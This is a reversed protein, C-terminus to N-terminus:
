KLGSLIEEKLGVYDRKGTKLLPIAERYVFTKPVGLEPVGERKAYASIRSLDIDPRTAVLVLREGKAEDPVGVCAVELEEDDGYADRCLNEVATLSIMEGAIKAFRKARDKIFVYGDADVSVVDGTEYWGDKLPQLVGPRDIKMYGMMINDGKVVLEGGEAVGDLKKIKYEIGPVIKGISGTRSYAQSCLTIVPSAETAGYGQIVRVGFKEVWLMRTDERLIEAGNIVLRMSAFDYPHAAKAYNRLFTNTAAMITVGSQYCIEPIVRYHLPTPYLFLRIGNMFPALTGFTLGFSHFMPLANFWVDSPGVNLTSVIQAINSAINRHSLVVAKPAGESGSTFLVVGEREHGGRKEPVYGRSYKAAAALKAGLGAGKLMDELYHVRVGAGEMSEILPALGIAEVFKRSTVATGVAAMKCCNLINKEGSSFNLMAPTRSHASLALFVALNNISNPLLVGVREGKKAIRNFRSALLFARTLVARYSAPRREIDEVAVGRGGRGGYLKAARMALAFISADHDIHTRYHAEQMVKYLYDGVRERSERGSEDAGVKCEKLFTIAVRPFARRRGSRIRSFRSHQIGEIQVPVLAAGTERAILAPAEYVKAVLGSEGVRGEALMVAWRGKAVADTLEKLSLPNTSDIIFVDACSLILRVWLPAAGRPMAFVPRGPLYAMLLLSDITSINSALFLAKNGIKELKAGYALRTKFMLGFAGRLLLKVIPYM